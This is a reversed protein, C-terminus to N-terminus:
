RRNREALRWAAPLALAALYVKLIDGPVFPYLGLELTKTLSTGLDGALWALGILYIVVNGTLMAAIATPVNQGWRREALWGTVASAIPFGLLYGGSAGTLVAWGSGAQAYVPLGALGLLVYTAASLGGRVTGMSAGVLLVAFTQGTLPVPTFPLAISVQAAAAILGAGVAILGADALRSNRPLVYARLTVASTDV